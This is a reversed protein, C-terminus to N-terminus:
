MRSAIGKKELEHLGYLSMSDAEGDPFMKGRNAIESPDCAMRVRVLMNM